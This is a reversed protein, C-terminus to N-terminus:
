KRDNWSIIFKVCLELAYCQAWVGINTTSLLKHLITKLLIAINKNCFLSWNRLNVVTYKNIWNYKDNIRLSYYHQPSLLHNQLVAQTILDVKVNVITANLTFM